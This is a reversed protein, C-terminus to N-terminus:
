VLIKEYDEGRRLQREVLALLIISTLATLGNHFVYTSCSTTLITALGALPIAPRVRQIRKIINIIYGSIAVVFLIGKECLTHIFENNATYWWLNGTGSDIYRFIKNQLTVWKLRGFEFGFLWSDKYVIILEKWVRVRQFITPTDVYFVFSIGAAIVTIICVIFSLINWAFFVYVVIGVIAGLIGTCSRCLILGVLIFPIFFVWRKRFFCVLSLALFASSENRNTLTGIIPKKTLFQSILLGTFIVSLICVSDMILNDNKKTNKIKSVIVYYWIVGCIVNISTIVTDIDPFFLSSDIQIIELPKALYFQPLITALLFIAIWKNSEWVVFALSIIAGIRFLATILERSQPFQPRWAGVM